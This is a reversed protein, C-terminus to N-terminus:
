MLGSQDLELYIVEVSGDTSLVAYVSLFDVLLGGAVLVHIEPDDAVVTTSAEFNEALRDIIPPLEHLLFDTASPRGSTSRQSPLLQDLRDFFSQAVRVQRRGTM